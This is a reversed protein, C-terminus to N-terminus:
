EDNRNKPEFPAINISEYNKNNRKKTNNYTSQIIDNNENENVFAPIILPHRYKNNWKIIENHSIAVNNNLISSSLNNINNQYNDFQKNYSYIAMMYDSEFTVYYYIISITMIFGDIIAEVFKDNNICDLIMFTQFLLIPVIAYNVLKNIFKGNSDIENLHVTLLSTFDGFHRIMFLYIGALPLIPNFNAFVICIAYFVMYQAGFYGFYFCDEENRHWAHGTNIFHRKYFSVQTSFANFM